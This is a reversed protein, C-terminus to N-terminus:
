SGPRIRSAVTGPLVRVSTLLGRRPCLTANGMVPRPPVSQSEPQFDARRSGTSLCRWDIRSGYPPGGVVAAAAVATPNVGTLRRVTVSASGPLSQGGATIVPVAVAQAGFAEDQVQGVGRDLYSGQVFSGLGVLKDEQIPDVGVVLGWASPLLGATVELSGGGPSLDNGGVFLTPTGTAPDVAIFSTAVQHQGAITTEIDIRLIEDAGTMPLTVGVSADDPKM